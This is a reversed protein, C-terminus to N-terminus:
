ALFAGIKLSPMSRLSVVVVAFEWSCNILSPLTIRSGPANGHRVDFDQIKVDCITLIECKFPIMSVIDHLIPDPLQSIRDEEKEHNPTNQKKEEKM